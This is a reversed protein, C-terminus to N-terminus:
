LAAEFLVRLLPQAINAIQIQQHVNCRNYPDPMGPM